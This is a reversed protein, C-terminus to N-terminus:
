MATPCAVYSGCGSLIYYLIYMVPSVFAFVIHPVRDDHAKGCKWALTFAYIMLILEILLISLLIIMEVNTLKKDNADKTSYISSTAISTFFM